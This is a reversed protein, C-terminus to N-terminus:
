AAKTKEDWEGFAKKFENFDVLGDKHKTQTYVFRPENLSNTLAGIKNEIATLERNMDRLGEFDGKDEEPNAKKKDNIKTELDRIEIMKTVKNSEEAKREQIKEQLNAQETSMAERIAEARDENWKKMDRKEFIECAPVLYVTKGEHAKQDEELKLKHYHRDCVRTKTKEKDIARFIDAIMEQDGDHGFSKIGGVFESMTLKGNNNLDCTNFFDRLRVERNKETAGSKKTKLDKELVVVDRSTAFKYQDKLDGMFEFFDELAEAQNMVGREMHKHVKSMRDKAVDDKGGADFEPNENFLWKVFERMDVSEDNNTDCSAYISRADVDRLGCAVLVARFEQRSLRCDRDLDYKDFMKRVATVTDDTVGDYSVKTLDKAAMNVIM